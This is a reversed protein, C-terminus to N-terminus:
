PDFYQINSNIWTKFSTIMRTRHFSDTGSRMSYGHKDYHQIFNRIINNTNAKSYKANLQSMPFQQYHKRHNVVNHFRWLMEILDNKTQIAGFNIGQLYSTAHNTCDPCPLNNCIKYIMSLLENKIKPFMSVKVKQAFTHFLFWTPEGWLMEKVRKNEIPNTNINTTNIPSIEFVPMTNINNLSYNKNKNNNRRNIFIM